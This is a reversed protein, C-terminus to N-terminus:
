GRQTVEAAELCSDCEGCPDCRECAMSASKLVYDYRDLVDGLERVLEEIRKDRWALEAAIDGKHHLRENTMAAVHKSYHPELKWPHDQHTYEKPAMEGGKEDKTEETM